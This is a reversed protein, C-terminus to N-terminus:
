FAMVSLRCILTLFDFYVFVAHVTYKCTNYFLCWTISSCCICCFVVTKTHDISTGTSVIATEITSIGGCLMNIIPDNIIRGRFLFCIIRRILSWIFLCLFFVRILHYYHCDHTAPQRVDITKPKLQYTHVRSCIVILKSAHYPLNYNDCEVGTYRIECLCTGNLCDGRGSCPTITDDDINSSTKFSTDTSQDSSALKVSSCRM